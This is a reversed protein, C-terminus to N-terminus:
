GLLFTHCCVADNCYFYWSSIEQDWCFRLATWYCSTRFVRHLKVMKFHRINATCKFIIATERKVSDAEEDWCDCEPCIWSYYMPKTSCHECVCVPLSLSSTVWLPNKEQWEARGEVTECFYKFFRQWVSQEKHFMIKRQKCMCCLCVNVKDATIYWKHMCVCLCFRHTLGRIAHFMLGGIDMRETKSGTITQRQERVNARTASLFLFDRGESGYIAWATCRSLQPGWM